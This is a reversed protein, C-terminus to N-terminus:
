ELLDWRIGSSPDGRGPRKHRRLWVHLSGDHWRALQWARQVRVGGAPVEEEYLWMPRRPDLLTGQPGVPGATPTWDRMRARRLRIQASDAAVREAVFPVWWPPATAELRYRWAGEESSGASPLSEPSPPFESFRPSESSESSESSPPSESPDTSPHRPWTNSRRMGRGLPGEILEEIGWALNATEDRTLTVQELAPGSLGTVTAPVLLWPSPHSDNPEDGTLEFLRWNRATGTRNFDIKATSQVRTRRGFTDVVEVSEIETLSGVPVPLPVVFHDDAYVTAFEAVLLRALDAPGAEIDGFHVTGDEFEWWRSAPMGPYRIPTPVAVTTRRPLDAAALGHTENRERTLDFTYWDLRGGDHEPAALVLEGTTTSAAVSFSHELRQEDWSSGATPVAARAARWDEIEAMARVRDDKGLGGLAAEIEGVPVAALRGADFAWRALLGAAARGPEGVDVIAGTARHGFAARLLPVAGGLGRARLRRILRHGARAAAHLGASGFDPEATAEVVAELPRDEPYPVTAGGGARYSGLRTTRSVVRVAAPQAADDGTFEGVQAQRALMWLPDAIRAQVGESLGPAHVM